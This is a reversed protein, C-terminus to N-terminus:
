GALLTREPPAPVGRADLARRMACYLADHWPVLCQLEPHPSRAKVLLSKLLGTHNRCSHALNFMTADQVIREDSACDRMLTAADADGSMARLYALHQGIIMTERCDASLIRSMQWRPAWADGTAISSTKRVDESLYRAIHTAACIADQSNDTNWIRVLGAALNSQTASGLRSVQSAAGQMASWEWKGIPLDGDSQYALITALLEAGELDRYKGERVARLPTSDTGYIETLLRVLAQTQTSVLSAVQSASVAGRVLSSINRESALEDLEMSLSSWSVRAHKRFALLTADGILQRSIALAIAHHAAPQTMACSPPRSGAADLFSSVQQLLMEVTSIVLTGDQFDRVIRDRYNSSRDDARSALRAIADGIVAQSDGSVGSMGLLVLRGRTGHDGASQPGAYRYLQEIGRLAMPSLDGDTNLLMASPNKVEIIDTELSGHFHVIFDPRGDLRLKANSRLFDVARKDLLPCVVEPIRRIINQLDYEDRGRVVASPSRLDLLEARAQHLALTLSYGPTWTM